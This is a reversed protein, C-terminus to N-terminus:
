KKTKELVEKTSAGYDADVAAITKAVRLFLDKASEITKGIQNNKRLYRKKLVVKSNDTLQPEILDSKKLDPM